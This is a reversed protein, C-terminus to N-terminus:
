TIVLGGVDRVSEINRRARLNTFLPTCNVDSMEYRLLAKVPKGSQPGANATGAWGRFEVYNSTTPNVLRIFSHPGKTYRRVRILVKNQAIQPIVGGLIANYKM